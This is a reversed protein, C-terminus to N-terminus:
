NIKTGYKNPEFTEAWWNRPRPRAIYVGLALGSLILVWGSAMANMGHTLTMFVDM